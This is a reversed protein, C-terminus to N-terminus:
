EVVKKWIYSEIGTHETEQKNKLYAIYFVYNWMNHDVQLNILLNNIINVTTHNYFGSKSDKDFLERENGCIFCIENIDQM